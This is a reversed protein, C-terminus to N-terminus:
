LVCMQVAYSTALLATVLTVDDRIGRPPVACFEAEAVLLRRRRKPHITGAQSVWIEATIYKL